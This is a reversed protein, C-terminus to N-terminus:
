FSDPDDAGGPFRCGIGIVAIPDASRQELRELRSNLEAALLAVRKPPLGALTELFNMRDHASQAASGRARSCGISKLTMLTKSRASYMWDPPLQRLNNRPSLKM